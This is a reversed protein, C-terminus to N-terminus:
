VTLLITNRYLINGHSYFLQEELNVCNKNRTDFNCRRGWQLPLLAVIQPINHLIGHNSGFPYVSRILKLPLQATINNEENKLESM